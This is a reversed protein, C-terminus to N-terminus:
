NFNHKFLHIILIGMNLSIMNVFTYPLLLFFNILVQLLVMITLQKYLERRVLPITYYSLHRTNRFSMTGFLVTIFLPLIGFFLFVIVYIRYKLYVPNVMSCTIKGTIPSKVQQSFVLYPIGHLIWIFGFILVLWRALKINCLQQLRPRSCTAWYQDITALCFCTLSLITCILVVYLRCKCYFLSTETGDTNYIALIIRPLLDILLEIINLISMVTLYFACSNQRFTQLSLFVITNLFEGLVGAIVVIMGGYITVQKGTYILSSAVSTSM